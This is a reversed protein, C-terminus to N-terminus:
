RCRPSPPWARHGPRRRSCSASAATPSGSWGSRTTCCGRNAPSPRSSTTATPSSPRTSCTSSGGACGSGRINVGVTAFGMLTALETGPEPGDPNSPGYGSYEIVTPYPGPGFQSPDPFRTMISLQAGDRITVYQYGPNVVQSSYLSTPPHDDVALVHFSPTVQLPSVSEDVIRYDGPKLTHGFTTPPPQGTGTAYAVYSDPVYAFNAQGHDDAFLTVQREHTVPDILTLHDGAAVGTITVTEVGPSVSFTNAVAGSLDVTGGGAASAPGTPALAVVGVLLAVRHVIAGGMTTRVNGRRGWHGM